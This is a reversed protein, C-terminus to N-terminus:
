NYNIITNVSLKTDKIKEPMQPLQDIRAITELASDDLAGNGSSEIVKRNSIQNPWTIDFGIKVKGKYNLRTAIRNKYKYKEVIDRVKSLYNAILTKEGINAKQEDVGQINDIPKTEAPKDLPQLKKSKNSKPKPKEQPIIKEIKRLQVSVKIKAQGLEESYNTLNQDQSSFLSPLLLSLHAFLSILFSIIFIKSRM